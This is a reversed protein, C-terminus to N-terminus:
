EIVQQRVAWVALNARSRTGTRRYLRLLAAHVGRDSMPPDLREGIEGDRYGDAVLTIIQVQRESLHAWPDDTPIPPRGRGM